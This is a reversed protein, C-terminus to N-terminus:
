HNLNRENTRFLRMQLSYHASLASCGRAQTAFVRQRDLTAVLQDEIM